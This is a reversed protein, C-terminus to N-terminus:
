RKRKKQRGREGSEWDDWLGLFKMQAALGTRRLIAGVADRDLREGIGDESDAIGFVTAAAVRTNARVRHINVKDFTDVESHYPLVYSGTDQIAVLAPIGEIQFDFHDSGLFANRTHKMGRGEDLRSMAARLGSELEPRGGLSYGQIQDQGMDHVIVAKVSDLKDHHREVYARSGFLGSEEGDFLIFRITRKPRKGSAVIARAAELVLAVNVGNDLCGTGMDWSDLHAGLIVVEEPLESGRIEAVVNLGKIAGGVVSPISVRVKASEGSEILRGLRLADERGLVASPVPDLQADVTHTHRFLVRDPKMSAFLVAAAGVEGAERMAVMAHSQQMGMAYFSKAEDLLVLVARGKARDGLRKVGGAGLKAALVVDLEVAGGDPTAPSWATAVSSVAFAVPAAVEIEAGGDRWSRPLEFMELWSSDVAADEFRGLAWQAAREMAPTGTLRPGIEDCLTRLNQELSPSKDVQRLVDPDAAVPVVGTVIALAWGFLRVRFARSLTRGMTTRSM